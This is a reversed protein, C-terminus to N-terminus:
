GLDVDLLCFFIDCASIFDLWNTKEVEEYKGETDTLLRQAEKLKAELASSRDDDLDRRNELAKRARSM